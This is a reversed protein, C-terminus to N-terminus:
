FTQLIQNTNIRAILPPKKKGRIGRIERFRDGGNPHRRNSIYNKVTERQGRRKVGVKLQVGTTSTRTLEHQRSGRLFVHHTDVSFGAVDDKSNTIVRSQDSLM